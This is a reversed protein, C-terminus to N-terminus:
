RIGRDDLIAMILKYSLLDVIEIDSFQCDFEEELAIVLNMHKLSDWSEITDPSSNENIQEITIEFVASM